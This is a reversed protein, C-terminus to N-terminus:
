KGSIFSAEFVIRRSDKELKQIIGNVPSMTSRLYVISDQLHLTTEKVDYVKTQSYIKTQSFFIVCLISCFLFLSKHITINM